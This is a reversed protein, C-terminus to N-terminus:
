ESTSRRANIWRDLDVPDYRIARDTSKVFRPGRGAGRMKDLTSKSLGLRAAAQRVNLLADPTPQSSQNARLAPGAARAAKAARSKKSALPPAGGFLDAQKEEDKARAGSRKTM